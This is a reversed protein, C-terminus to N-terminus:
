ENNDPNLINDLTKNEIQEYTICSQEVLKQLSNSKIDESVEGLLILIEDNSSQLITSQNEKHIGYEIRLRTIESAQEFREQIKRDYEAKLALFLRQYNSTEYVGNTVIILTKYGELQLKYQEWFEKTIVRQNFNIQDKICQWALTVTRLYMPINISVPNETIIVKGVNVLSSIGHTLLLMLHLKKKKAEKSYDSEKYRLYSVMRIILEPIFVTVGKLLETRLNFGDKYMEVAFQRIERNSSKQLLHHGPVPLSKNSFFDAFMHIAYEWIAQLWSMQIYPKGNQNVSSEVFVRVGDIFQSDRFTGDHYQKIADFFMLLDHGDTMGRHNGGGYSVSPGDHKVGNKILNGYQDFRGQFDLPNDKHNLIPSDHISQCWRGIPNNSSNCKSAFSNKNAPDSFLFDMLVEITAAAFVTIVDYKDFPISDTPISDIETQVSAMEADVRALEQDFYISNGDQWTDGELPAM